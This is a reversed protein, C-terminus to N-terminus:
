VNKCETKPPPERNAGDKWDDMDSDSFVFVVLLQSGSEERALANSSALTTTVNFLWIVLVIVRIICTHYVLKIEEFYSLCHAVRTLFLQTTAVIYDQARNEPTARSKTRM